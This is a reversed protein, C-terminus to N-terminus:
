DPDKVLVIAQAWITSHDYSDRDDNGYFCWTRVGLSMATSAELEMDFLLCEGIWFIKSDLIGM